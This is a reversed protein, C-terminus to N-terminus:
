RRVPFRKRAGAVAAAPAPRQREMAALAASIRQEAGIDAQRADITYNNVVTAGGAGQGNYRSAPIMRGSTNPVFVEPQGREGVMYASGGQVSGGEARAGSVGGILSSLGSTYFSGGKGFVSDMLPKIVSLYTITQALQKAFSAFFDQMSQKGNAFAYPLENLASSLTGELQSFQSRMEEAERQLNEKIRASAVANLNERAQEFQETTIRKQELMKQYQQLDQEYGIRIATLNDDRATAAQQALGALENETQRRAELIKAETTQAVLARGQQYEQESILRESALQKLKAVAQQDELAITELTQKRAAALQQRLSMIEDSGRTDTKNKVPNASTTTQWGGDTNRGLSAFEGLRNKVEAAKTSATGYLREIEANVRNAEEIVPLFVDKLSAAVDTAWKVFGTATPALAGLIEQFSATSTTKLDSIAGDLEKTAKLAKESVTAGYRNAASGAADLGDAGGQLVKVLDRGGDGFAKKTLLARNEATGAAQVANAYAALAEATSNTKNLADLVTPAQQRLFDYFGGSKTRAEGLAENFRLMSEAFKQSDVNAAAASSALKQYEAATMGLAAATDTLKAADDALKTLANVGAVAALAAVISGMAQRIEGAHKAYRGEARKLRRDTGSEYAGIQGDADKLARRLGATDAELRVLLSELESAM